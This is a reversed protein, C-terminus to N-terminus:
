SLLLSQVWNVRGQRWKYAHKYELTCAMTHIYHIAAQPVHTHLLLIVTLRDAARNSTYAPTVDPKPVFLHGRWQEKLNCLKGGHLTNLM